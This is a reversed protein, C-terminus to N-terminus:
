DYVYSITKISHVCGLKRGCCPAVLYKQEPVEMAIFGKVAMIGMAVMTVIPVMDVDVILFFIPKAGHVNM